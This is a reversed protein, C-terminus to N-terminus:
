PPRSRAQQDQCFAYLAHEDRFVFLLAAEDAAAGLGQVLCALCGPLRLTSDALANLRELAAAANACRAAEFRLLAPAGAAPAASAQRM